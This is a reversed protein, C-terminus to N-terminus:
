ANAVRPLAMHPSHARCLTRGHLTITPHMDILSDPTPTVRTIAPPRATLPNRGVNTQASASDHNPASDVSSLATTGRFNRPRNYFQRRTVRADSSKM